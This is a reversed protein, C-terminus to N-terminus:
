ELTLRGSQLRFRIQQRSTSHVTVPTVVGSEFEYPIMVLQGSHRGIAILRGTENDRYREESHRLIEELLAISLGRVSARHQLYATWEVHMPTPM